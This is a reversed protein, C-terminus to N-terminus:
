FNKLGCINSFGLDIGKEIDHKTTQFGIYGMCMASLGITFVLICVLLRKALFVVVSVLVFTGFPMVPFMGTSAFQLTTASSTFLIMFSASSTQVQPLIGNELMVPGKVMCGGIGLLGTAIGASTCYLPFVVQTKHKTWHVDCDVFPTNPIVMLRNRLRLNIGM